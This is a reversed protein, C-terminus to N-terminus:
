VRSKIGFPSSLGSLCSLSPQGSSGFPDFRGLSGFTSPHGSSVYPDLPSSLEFLDILSSLGCQRVARRGLHTLNAWHGM